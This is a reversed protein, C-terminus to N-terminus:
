GRAWDEDCSGVRRGQGRGNGSLSWNRATGFAKVARALGLTLRFAKKAPRLQYGKPLIRKLSVRQVEEKEDGSKQMGEMVWHRPPYVLALLFEGSLSPASSQTELSFCFFVVSPDALLTESRTAFTSLM